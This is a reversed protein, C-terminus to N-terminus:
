HASTAAAGGSSLKSVIDDVAHSVASLSSVSPDNKKLQEDLQMVQSVCAKERKRTGAAYAVGSEAIAFCASGCSARAHALKEDDFYAKGAILGDGLSQCVGTCGKLFNQRAEAANKSSACAAYTVRNFVTGALDKALESGPAYQITVAAQSEPRMLIYADRDFWGGNFGDTAFDTVM